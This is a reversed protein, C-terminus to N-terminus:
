KEVVIARCPLVCVGPIKLPLVILKVRGKRIKDLNTIGAIIPINNQFLEIFVGEPNTFGSDYGPTDSGFLRVKKEGVWRAVDRSFYLPSGKKWGTHILLADGKRPVISSEKLMNLTIRQPPNKLKIITADYIFTKIPLDAVNEGKRYIHASTEFYTGTHSKITLDYASCKHGLYVPLKQHLYAKYEPETSIDIVRM